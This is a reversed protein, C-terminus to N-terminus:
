NKRKGKGYQEITKQAEEHAEQAKRARKLWKGIDKCMSFLGYVVLFAIILTLTRM